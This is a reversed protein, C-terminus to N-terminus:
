DAPFLGGSARTGARRHSQRERGFRRGPRPSSAPGLSGCCGSSAVALQMESDIVLGPAKDKAIETARRVQPAYPHNVSGFNSFYLISVRPEIGFARATSATVLEIEALGEADADVAVACDALFLAGRPLLVLYHSFARHVGPAPGIVEPITRLSEVYHTSVGAIMMVADSLHLMPAAFTDTQLVRQATTARMVGRRRRMRSCEDVYAEFRPSRAPDVIHAGSLGLGRREITERVESERGLLIPTAIGKEM